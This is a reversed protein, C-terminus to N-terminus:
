ETLRGIRRTSPRPQWGLWRAALRARHLQTMVPGRRLDFRDDGLGEVIEEMERLRRVAGLEIRM